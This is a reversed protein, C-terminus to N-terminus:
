WRQPKEFEDSLSYSDFGGEKLVLCARGVRIKVGEDNWGDECYCILTAFDEGDKRFDVIIKDDELVGMLIEEVASDFDEYDQVRETHLYATYM